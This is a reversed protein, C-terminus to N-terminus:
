WGQASWLIFDEESVHPMKDCEALLDSAEEGQFFYIDAENDDDKGRNVEVWPLSHNITVSQGEARCYKATQEIQDTLEDIDM